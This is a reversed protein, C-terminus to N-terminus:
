IGLEKYLGDLDFPLDRHREMFGRLAHEFLAAHTPCMAMLLTGASGVIANVLVGAITAVTASSMCCQVIKAVDTEGAHDKRYHDLAFAQTTCVPCSVGGAVTEKEETM